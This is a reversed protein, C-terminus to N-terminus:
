KFMVPKQKWMQMIHICTLCKKQFEDILIKVEKGLNKHDFHDTHNFTVSLDNKM